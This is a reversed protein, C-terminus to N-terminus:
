NEFKGLFVFEKTCQFVLDKRPLDKMEMLYLVLVECVRAHIEVLDEFCVEIYFTTFLNKRNNKIIVACLQTKTFSIIRGYIFIPPDWYNALCLCRLEWDFDAYSDILAFRKNDVWETKMVNNEIQLGDFHQFITYAAQTSAFEILWDTKMPRISIIAEPSILKRMMLAFDEPDTDEPVNHALIHKAEEDCDILDKTEEKLAWLIKINQNWLNVTGVGSWRKAALASQHDPFELIAKCTSSNQNTNRKIVLRSVQNYISRIGQEIEEDTLSTPINLAKLHSRELSIEVDMMVGPKILFYRMLDLCQFAQPFSFIEILFVNEASTLTSSVSYDWYYILYGFGRNQNDYDILLRFQFIPGFREFSPLIDDEFM